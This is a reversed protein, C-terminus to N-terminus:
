QTELRRASFSLQDPDAPNVGIAPDVRDDWRVIAWRNTSVQKLTLDALGVAIRGLTANETTVIFVEYKEHLIANGTILNIEDDGGPDNHTWRMYYGDSRLGVFYGYFNKELDLTWTPVRGNALERRRAVEPDFTAHFPVGDTLSDAFAGVYASLGNRLGKAAM